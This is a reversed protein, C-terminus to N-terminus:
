IRGLIEADCLWNEIEIHRNIENQRFITTLLLLFCMLRHHHDHHTHARKRVSVSRISFEFNSYRGALHKSSGICVYQQSILKLGYVQTVCKLAPMGIFKVSKGREKRGVIKSKGSVFYTYCVFVCVCKNLIWQFRRLHCM